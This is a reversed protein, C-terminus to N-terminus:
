WMLYFFFNLINFFIVITKKIEIAVIYGKTYVYKKHIWFLKFISITNRTKTDNPGFSTDDMVCWKAQCTQGYDFTCWKEAEFSYYEYFCKVAWWYYSYKMFITKLQRLFKQILDLIKYSSFWRKEIIVYSFNSAWLKNKIM